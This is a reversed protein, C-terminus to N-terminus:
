ECLTSPKADSVAEGIVTANLTVCWQAADDHSCVASFFHSSLINHQTAEPYSSAGKHSYRTGPRGARVEVGGRPLSLQWVGREM